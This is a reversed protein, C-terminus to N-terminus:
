ASSPMRSEEVDRPSPSTYLLCRAFPDAVSAVLMAFFVCVLLMVGLAWPTYERRRDGEIWAFLGVYAGLIGGWFLISGDLSAWLSVITFYLPTSLSGVKAVYGVSFDHSILAWTMLLNAAIISAAFGLACQRAWRWGVLSKRAGAALGIVAGSAAFAVSALVLFRGLEPIM